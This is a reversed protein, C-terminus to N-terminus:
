QNMHTILKHLVSPKTGRKLRVTQGTKDFHTEVFHKSCLWVTNSTPVVTIWPSMVCGQRLGVRVPFWESMSNGVRVCARSHRYFSKVGELLRGDIGYM